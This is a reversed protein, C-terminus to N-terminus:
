DDVSRSRLAIIGAFLPVHQVWEVETPPGPNSGPAERDRVATTVPGPTSPPEEPTRRFESQAPNTDM